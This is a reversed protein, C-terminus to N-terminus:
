WFASRPKTPKILTLELKKITPLVVVEDQTVLTKLKRHISIAASLEETIVLCHPGLEGTKAQVLIDGFALAIEQNTTFSIPRTIERITPKNFLEKRVKNFWGGTTFGLTDQYGNTSMGRYILQPLSPHQLDDIVEKAWILSKVLEADPSLIWSDIVELLRTNKRYAEVLSSQLKTKDLPREADM